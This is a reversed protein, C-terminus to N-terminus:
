EPMISNKITKGDLHDIEHQLIVANRDKFVEEHNTGDVDTYLIRLANYRKVSYIQNPHSLCSETSLETEGLFEEITPNVFIMLQNKEDNKLSAICVREKIGIQNAALGIINGTKRQIHMFTDLMDRLIRKVYKSSINKVPRTEAFLIPNNEDVLNRIPM